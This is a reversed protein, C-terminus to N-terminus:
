GIILNGFWSPEHFSPRETKVESWMGYHVDACDDGCKYFNGFFETGSKLELGTIDKFNKHTLILTVQWRDDLVEAKVAPMETVKDVSSRAGPAGSSAHMTGISNFEFNAYSVRDPSMFFELCSDCCVDSMFETRKTLPDKELATMRVVLGTDEAYVGQAYCVPKYEYGWGWKDISAKDVKEWDVDSLYEYKKFVYKMKKEETKRDFISIVRSLAYLACFIEILFVFNDKVGNEDFRCVLMPLSYTFGFYISLAASPLLYKKVGARLVYRTDATIFLLLSLLTFIHYTRVGSSIPYSMDFYVLAVEFFCWAMAGVGLLVRLGALRRGALATVIFRACLIVSTALMGFYAVREPMRAGADSTGLATSIFLAAAFGGVALSSIVSLPNQKIERGDETKEGFIFLALACLAAAASAANLVNLLSCETYLRFEEEYYYTLMFANIVAGAAALLASVIFLIKERTKM